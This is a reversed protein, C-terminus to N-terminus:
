VRLSSLTHLLVSVCLIKKQGKGLTSNHIVVESKKNIKKCGKSEPFSCARFIYTQLSGHEAKEHGLPTPFPRGSTLVRRSFLYESYTCCMNAQLFDFLFLCSKELLLTVFCLLNVNSVFM